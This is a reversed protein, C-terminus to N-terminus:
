LVKAARMTLRQQNCSISKTAYILYNHRHEAGKESCGVCIDVSMGVNRRWFAEYVGGRQTPNDSLEEFEVLPSSVGM